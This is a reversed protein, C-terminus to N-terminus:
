LLNPCQLNTTLLLWALAARCSHCNCLQALAVHTTHGGRESEDGERERDRMGKGKERHLAVLKWM